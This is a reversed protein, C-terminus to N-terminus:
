HPLAAPSIIEPVISLEYPLQRDHKECWAYIVNIQAQTLKTDDEWFWNDSLVPSVMVKIWGAEELDPIGKQKELTFQLGNHHEYRCAYFFGDPSVWANDSNFDPDLVIPVYDEEDGYTRLIEIPTYLSM